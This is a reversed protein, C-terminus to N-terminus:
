NAYYPIKATTGAVNVIIFGVPNAPLTQAGATATTATTGGYSVQNAGTTTAAGQASFDLARITTFASDDALVCTLVANVRKLAPFSATTGGFQLRTFDTDSWNTLRILGDASSRIASRNTFALYSAAGVDVGAAFTAVQTNTITLATTAAGTKFIIGGVGVTGLVLNPGSVSMGYGLADSFTYSGVGSAATINGGSAGLLVSGAGSPTITINQNTGGAVIFQGSATSQLTLYQTTSSPAFITFYTNPGNKYWQASRYIGDGLGLNVESPGSLYFGVAPYASFAISPAAVTGNAFLAQQTSTLTLATVGSGSVIFTSKGATVSGIYAGGSLLTVAAEASTTKFRFDGVGATYFSDATGFGIGGASTTHTALQLKGNGGDTTTGILLNGTSNLRFGEAFSNASTSYAFSLIGSTGDVNNRNAFIGAARRNDWTYFELAGIYTGGLSTNQIKIYNLATTIANTNTESKSIVTAGTGSPTLTINQNTGGAALSMGSAGGTITGGSVTLNGGFTPSYANLKRTGNTTGDLAIYDDSSSASATTPLANIRINPM